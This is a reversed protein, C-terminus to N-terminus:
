EIYGKKGLLSRARTFTAGKFKLADIALMYDHEIGLVKCTAYVARIAFLYDRANSLTPFPQCLPPDTNHIIVQWKDAGRRYVYAHQSAEEIAEVLTM